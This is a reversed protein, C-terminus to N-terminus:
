GFAYEALLILNPWFNSRLTLDHPIQLAIVVFCSIYGWLIRGFVVGKWNCIFFLIYNFYISSNLKKKNSNKLSINTYTINECKKILLFYQTVTHADFMILTDICNHSFIDFLYWTFFLLTDNLFDNNQILHSYTM